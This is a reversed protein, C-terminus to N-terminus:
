SIQFIATILAVRRAKEGDTLSFVEASATAQARSIKEVRGVARVLAGSAPAIQYLSMQTTLIPRPPDLETLLSLGAAVDAITAIVGAMVAGTGSTTLHPANAAEITVAGPAIETLRAGFQHMPGLAAFAAEVFARNVEAIRM